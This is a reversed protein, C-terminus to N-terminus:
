KPTVTFSSQTAVNLVTGAEVKVDGGTKHAAATGAAGGLIGGVVSGKGSDVQHGIIAGAAAGGVIKATDKGTESVGKQTYSASIPVTAGNSAVLSTFGLGLEPTGGVKDTGSVVKTVSGTVTAGASAAKRGDVMVDSALRAQVPDGVKVKKTNVNATLEIALRTGAPVTIPTPPTAAKPAAAATSAPKTAPKKAPTAAKAAAAAAAANEADRRALEAELDKQQQQLAAEREAIEQEKAALEAARAEDTAAADAAAQQTAPAADSAPQSSPGCGALMLTAAGAAAILVPLGSHNKTL